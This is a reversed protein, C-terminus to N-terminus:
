NFGMRIGHYNPSGARSHSHAPSSARSSSTSGPIYTQQLQHSRKHGPPYMPPPHCGQALMQLGLAGHAGSHQYHYRLGNMSLSRSVSLDTVLVFSSPCLNSESRTGNGVVLSMVCM